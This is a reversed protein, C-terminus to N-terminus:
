HRKKIVNISVKYGERPLFGNTSAVVLSKGSGSPRGVSDLKFKITMEDGDISINDEVIVTEAM